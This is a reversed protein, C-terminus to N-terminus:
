ALCFLDLIAHQAAYPLVHLVCSAPSAFRAMHSLALSLESPLVHPPLASASLCALCSLCFSAPLQLPPLCTFATICLCVFALLLLHLPQLPMHLCVFCLCESLVAMCFCIGWWTFVYQYVAYAIYPCSINKLIKFFYLGGGGVCM